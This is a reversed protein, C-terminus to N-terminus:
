SDLSCIYGLRYWDFYRLSPNKGIIRKKLFPEFLYFLWAFLRTFHYKRIKSYAKLLPNVEEIGKKEALFQKRSVVSQLAKEFFVTNDELGLHLIPNDIHVVKIHHQYLQYGFYIDMGYLKTSETFNLKLFISKSILMNGSFTYQYPYSNRIAVSKEEREKGFRYRLLLSSDPECSDYQYGGFVVKESTDIWELYNEIFSESVPLVDADLFLLWDYNAQEALLQRIKTRGLNKPNVQYNCHSFANIKEIEHLSRNESFDDLCRIEFSISLAVCQKHISEVLKLIECNYTPILISLMDVNYYGMNLYVGFRGSVM